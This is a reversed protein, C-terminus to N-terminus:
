SALFKVDAGEIYFKPPPLLHQQAFKVNRMVMFFKAISANWKEFCKVNCRGIYVNQSADQQM